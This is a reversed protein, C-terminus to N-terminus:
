IIRIDAPPPKLSSRYRTLFSSLPLLAMNLKNIREGVEKLAALTVPFRRVDLGDKTKPKAKIMVADVTPVEEPRFREWLAHAVTVSRSATITATISNPLTDTFESCTYTGRRYALAHTRRIAHQVEGEGNRAANSIPPVLL